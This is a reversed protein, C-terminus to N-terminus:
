QYGSLGIPLCRNFFFIYAGLTRKFNPAQNTADKLAIFKFIRNLNNELILLVDVLLFGISDSNSIWHFYVL